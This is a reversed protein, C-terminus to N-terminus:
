IIEKVTSLETDTSRTQSATIFSSNSSTVTDAPSILALVSRQGVLRGLVVATLTNLFV